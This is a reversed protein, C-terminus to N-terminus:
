NMIIQLKLFDEIGGTIDDFGWKGFKPNLSKFMTLYSLFDERKMDIPISVNHKNKLSAHSKTM